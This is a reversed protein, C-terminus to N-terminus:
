PLGLLVADDGTWGFDDMFMTWDVDQFPDSVAPAAAAQDPGQAASSGSAPAAGSSAGPPIGAAFTAAGRTAQIFDLARNVKDNSGQAAKLGFRFRELCWFTIGAGLRDPWTSPAPGLPAVLHRVSWFTEMFPRHRLLASADVVSRLVWQPAHTLLQGRAELDLALAVLTRSTGFARATNRLLATSPTGTPPTTVFHHAQIELQAAVLCFRSIDTDFRVLLPRLAEFETEWMAVVAEPVVGHAGIQAAMATSFRNLFRQAEYMAKLDTWYHSQLARKPGEDALQITPPPIGISSATRQALMCCALWTASAEEDSSQLHQRMGVAFHSHSGRGVHCGLLKAAHLAIAAFTSSPDTVFRINPLPWTCILLLVHIAELSLAPVAMMVWVERNLHEVLAPFIAGDRPYRRCAICVITWFLTSNAEYCEDPDKKRLVPIFPHYCQLYKSFYWDVDEGSVVLSGLTRSGTPGTKAHRPGAGPGPTSARPDPLPTAVQPLPPPPPRLRPTAPALPSQESIASHATARPSPPTWAPPGDTKPNVAQKISRLEQELLELKSRKTIRKHAKDVVCKIELKSCRQCPEGLTPSAKCRVAATTGIRIWAESEEKLVPVTVASMVRNGVEPRPEFHWFTTNPSFLEDYGLHHRDFPNTSLDTGGQGPCAWFIAPYPVEVKAYGSADPRLYRLHLPVQATWAQEESPRPAALGLLVNSGWTKTAYEPAELDVPLTTYESASLNKSELFLKDDFQYRDAFITKPLTLYAYPACEADISPPKNSSMTFQLTPHLGTPKIFESTFSSTTPRHRSPFAFLAPSPEKQEGLVNLIGGLGVEHSGLNPPADKTFIGVETRRGEISPVTIAHERLPWFASIKLAKDASDYAIDLSSATFLSRLRSPCIADSESCYQATMSSIFTGLNELEQYFSLSEPAGRGRTLAPTFSESDMCKLPGLAQLAECLKTLNPAKEPSPTLYVRLGPSQRSSFPELTDYKRPSAWRLHLARYGSLLDALERPLEDLGLTLRDQRVCRTSPGLLGAPQVDLDKPDIGGDPPSIFTVRERMGREHGPLAWTAPKPHLQGYNTDQSLYRQTLYARGPENTTFFAIIQLGAFPQYRVYSVSNRWPLRSNVHGSAKVLVQRLAQDRSM